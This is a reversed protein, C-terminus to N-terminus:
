SRIAKAQEKYQALLDNAEQDRVEQDEKEISLLDANAERHVTGRAKNQDIQKQIEQKFKAADELPSASLSFSRSIEGLEAEAKSIELQQGLREAERKAQMIRDQAVKVQELFANYSEEHTKLQSENEQRSKRTSQLQRVYDAAKADENKSLALKIRADLTSEEKTGQEIQREVSSILSKVRILNEKAARLNETSEQIKQNYMTVPDVREAADALKGVQAKGVGLLRLFAKFNLAAILAVVGFIIWGISLTVM